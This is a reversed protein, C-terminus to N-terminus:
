KAGWRFTLHCSGSVPLALHLELRHDTVVVKEMVLQLISQMTEFDPSALQARIQGVITEASAMQRVALERRSAWSQLEAMEQQAGLIREEIADKRSRFEDLELAGNQYADTLRIRQRNMEALRTSALALRDDGAPDSATRELWSKLHEVLTDNDLLLDRVTTWVADDVGAVLLAKSKCRLQAPSSTRMTCEYYRHESLGADTMPVKMRTKGSYPHGCLGCRVLGRLLYVRERKLHRKAFQRNEEIRQQARAFAADDVIRPVPVIIWESRPRETKVPKSRRKEAPQSGSRDQLRYTCRNYYARGISWECRLMRLITPACWVPGAARGRRVGQRPKWSSANLRQVIGYLSVREQTYWAFVQRVMAAEEDHIRIQGDGGYKRAAYTYGYPPAPPALEGRRARHLRGRRCRELIKAREYEAIAGQIQLLLQDDPSDNIPRECFLVEIGARKLEELLLVQYAYRRALRDPALVVVM